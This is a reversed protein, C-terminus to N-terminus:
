RAGSRNSFAPRSQAPITLALQDAAMTRREQNVLARHEGVIARITPKGAAPKLNAIAAKLLEACVRVNRGFLIPTNDGDPKDAWCIAADLEDEVASLQDLAAQLRPDVPM